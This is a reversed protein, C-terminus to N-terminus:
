HAPQREDIMPDMPQRPPKPRGFGPPRHKPGRRGLAQALARREDLDLQSVFEIFAFHSEAQNSGLVQRMAQLEEGLQEASFPDAGVAKKVAAHQQRIKKLQPQILRRQERLLPRLERRREDPLSMAWRPDLRGPDGFVPPGQLWQGLVFGAVALNLGVSVVLAIKLWRDVKM